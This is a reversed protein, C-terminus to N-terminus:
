AEIGPAATPEVIALRAADGEAAQADIVRDLGRQELHNAGAGDRGGDGRVLFCGLPPVL